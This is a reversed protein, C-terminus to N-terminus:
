PKEGREMRLLTSATESLFVLALVAFGVAALYTFPYYVMHLTESLEGSRRITSAKEAVQWAVAGSFACCVLQNFLGLLSRVRPPFRAILVDVAIHGRFAQTYALAFAACVAGFYGMLEFTGPIPAWFLRIGINACTLGVMALLVVGGLVALTRNLHRAVRLFLQTM